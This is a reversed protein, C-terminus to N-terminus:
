ARDCEALKIGDQELRKLVAERVYASVTTMARDAGRAAAVLFIPPCRVFLASPFKSTRRTAAATANM